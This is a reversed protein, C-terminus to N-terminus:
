LSACNGCLGFFELEHEQVEFNYKRAIDEHSLALCKDYMPVIKSCKTCVLHHHHKGALEYRYKGERFDIQKVIDNKLFSEITRYVTAKDVPSNTKQVQTYVHAIDVPESAANLAELVQLRAPTVRLNKDKLLQAYNM